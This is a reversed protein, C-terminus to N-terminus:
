MEASPLNHSLISCMCEKCLVGHEDGALLTKLVLDALQRERNWIRLLQQWNSCVILVSYPILCQFNLFGNVIFTPMLCFERSEMSVFSHPLALAINQAFIYCVTVKQQYTPVKSESFVQMNKYTESNSTQIFTRCFVTWLAPLDGLRKNYSIM